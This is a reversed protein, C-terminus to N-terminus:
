QCLKLILLDLATQPEVRGTKIALDNEFLMRYINKLEDMTYNRVLNLSKGAVFPHLGARKAMEWQSNAGRVTLDKVILLNRYQYVIMSLIYLENQGNDLLQHLEHLAKKSSRSAVADILAFIDSSTQPRVLLEVDPVAIPSRVESKQEGATTQLRYDSLKRIENSLRWLDAGVYEYLKETADPAIQGGFRNVEERIWKKVGPEDLPQFEQAMKLKSLKKFLSSRKDPSGSEAFVLITSEPVKPLFEGIKEQTTVVKGPKEEKTKTAKGESTKKASMLLNEVIVLRSKALFPYALAQRIIDDATVTKGDLVALNTDGLSASIYKEKMDKLKQKLRYTDEGYLFLIM